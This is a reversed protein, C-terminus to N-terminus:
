AQMYSDPRNFLPGARRGLAEPFGQGM